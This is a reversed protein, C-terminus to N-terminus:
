RFATRYVCEPVIELRTGFPHSRLLRPTETPRESEPTSTTPASNQNDEEDDFIIPNAATLGEKQFDDFISPTFPTNIGPGYVSEM